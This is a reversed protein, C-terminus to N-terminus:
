TVFSPFFLIRLMLSENAKSQLRGLISSELTDNLGIGIIKEFKSRDEWVIQAEISQNPQDYPPESERTAVMEWKIGDFYPHSKM